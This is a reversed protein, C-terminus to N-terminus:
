KGGIWSESPLWTILLFEPASRAITLNTELKKYPMHLREYSVEARRHLAILHRKEVRHTEVTRSYEDGKSKRVRKRKGLELFEVGTGM